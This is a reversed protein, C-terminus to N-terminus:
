RICRFIQELLEFVSLFLYYIVRFSSLPELEIKCVPCSTTNSIWLWKALCMVHVSDRCPCPRILTIGGDFCIRCTAM